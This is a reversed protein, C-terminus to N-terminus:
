RVVAAEPAGRGHVVHLAARHEDVPRPVLFLVPRSPATQEAADMSGRRVGRPGLLGMDALFPLTTRSYKSAATHATASVSTSRAKTTCANRMGDSDMSSVSCTPSKRNTFLNSYPGLIGNVCMRSGPSRWGWVPSMM